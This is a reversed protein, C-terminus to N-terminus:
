AAPEVAEVRDLANWVDALEELAEYRRRLGNLQSLADKLVGPRDPGLLARATTVYGDQVGEPTVRRVHVFAPGSARKDLVTVRLTRIVRRAQEVRYRRAAESDDWEFLPHLPSDAPRAAEVLAAPHCVGQEREIQEVTEAILAAPVGSIVQDSM